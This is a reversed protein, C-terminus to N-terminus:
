KKNEEGYARSEEELPVIIKRYIRKMFFMCLTISAIEAIPWAIWVKSVDGTKSFLYALPVLFVLQRTFSVIM